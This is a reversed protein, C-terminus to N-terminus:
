VHDFRGRGVAHDVCKCVHFRRNVPHQGFKAVFADLHRQRRHPTPPSDKAGANGQCDSRRTPPRKVRWKASLPWGGGVIGRTAGSLRDPPTKLRFAAPIHGACNECLM